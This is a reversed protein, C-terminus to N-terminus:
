ALTSRLVSASRWLLLPLYVVTCSCMTAVLSSWSRSILLAKRAVPITCMTSQHTQREAKTLQALNVVLRGPMRHLAEGIRACSVGSSIQSSFVGRYKGLALGALGLM